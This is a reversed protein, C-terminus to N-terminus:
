SSSSKERANAFVGPIVIDNRDIPSVLTNIGSNSEGEEEQTTGKNSGQMLGGKIKDQIVELVLDYDITTRRDAFGYVLATECLINIVRPIGGSQRHILRKAETKFLEPDGGATSLRHSVYKDTEEPGLPKLHYSVSVRQIFQELEPRRLKRYLEPQGVLILQLVQNKDANINSLLRFEELAKLDLNQAEDIILATRQGKAYRDILFEIFIDYLAVKSKNEYPLGFALNVWQMLDGFESHTNSLLGVNVDQGIQNLLQRILTTKGAGIDGTLVTVLANNMLAYQLMALALSHKQGLYLFNPDPLMSFPNERFRYYDLFM